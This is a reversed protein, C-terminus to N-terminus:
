QKANVVPIITQMQKQQDRIQAVAKKYLSPNAKLKAFNQITRVADDLEWKAEQDIQGM